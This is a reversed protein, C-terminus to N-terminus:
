RAVEWRLIHLIWRLIPLDTAPILFHGFHCKESERRRYQCRSYRLGHNLDETRCSVAPGTTMGDPPDKAQQGPLPSSANKFSKNVGEPEWYRVSRNLTECITGLSREIKEAKDYIQQCKEASGV